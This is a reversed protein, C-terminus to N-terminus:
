NDSIIFLIFAFKFEFEPYKPNPVEKKYYYSITDNYQRIIM